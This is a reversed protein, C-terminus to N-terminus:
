PGKSFAGLDLILNTYSAFVVSNRIQCLFFFHLFTRHTARVEEKSGKELWWFLVTGNHLQREAPLKLMSFM